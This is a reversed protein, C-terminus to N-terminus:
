LTVILLLSMIKSTFQCINREDSETKNDTAVATVNFCYNEGPNLETVNAQTESTNLHKNENEWKVTYFLRKGEPETWNLSM